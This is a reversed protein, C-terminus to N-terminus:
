DLAAQQEDAQRLRDYYNAAHARKAVDRYLDLVNTQDIHPRQTFFTYHSIIANGLLINRAGIERVYKETLWIEEDPLPEHPVYMLGPGLPFKAFDEGFFAFSSISFRHFDLWQDPFYLRPVSGAEIHELLVRHVHEGYDPREWGVPDMCYPESVRGHSEDISGAEQAYYSIIANNWITPFVLFVDRLEVRRTLLNKLADEHLYIIDDDFRVYITGPDVTQTYFYGTNLQKPTRFPGLEPPLYTPTVYVNKQAELWKWDSAVDTNMWLQVGDLIGKQYELDLYKLLLSMTKRRGAPIVAVVKHGEFM